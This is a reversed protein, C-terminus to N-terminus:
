VTAYNYIYLKKRDVDVPLILSFTKMLCKEYGKTAHLRDKLHDIHPLKLGAVHLMFSHSTNKVKKMVM